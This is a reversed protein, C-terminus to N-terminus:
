FFYKCCFSSSFITTSEKFVLVFDDTSVKAIERIFLRDSVIVRIDKGTTNSKNDWNPIFLGKSFGFGECPVNQGGEETNFIITSFLFLNVVWNFLIYTVVVFIRFVISPNSSTVFITLFKNLTKFFRGIGVKGGPM